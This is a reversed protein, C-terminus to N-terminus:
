DKKRIYEEFPNYDLAKKVEELRSRLVRNEQKLGFVELRSDQLQTDVYMVLASRIVESFPLETSHVIRNALGRPIRITFKRTDQCEYCIFRINEPIDVGGARGIPTIHDPVM